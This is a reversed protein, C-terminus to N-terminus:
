HLAEVREMPVGYTNQISCLEEWTLHKARNISPTWSDPSIPHAKGNFYMAGKKTTQMLAFVALKTM